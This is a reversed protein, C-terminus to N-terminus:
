KKFDFSTIRFETRRNEQEEYDSKEPAYIPSGEGFGFWSLREPNVGKDALYKVAAMARRESLLKNYGESGNTDTHSGLQITIQPNALLMGLLKDLELAADARIFYKDYDYYINKLVIPKTVFIPEIEIDINRELDVHLTDGRGVQDGIGMTSITVDSTLYGPANAVIKYRKNRELPFTYRANETTNRKDLEVLSSGDESYEFLVATAFPVPQKTAKDKVTGQVAVTIHPEAYVIFAGRYIDDRGKGGPRNSSFYLASDGRMWFSAYDDYSSNIPAGVNTTNQYVGDVLESVYLDQGGFGVHGESSFYLKSADESLFPSIENFPTNVYEGANEPTTWGNGTRHAVWVDNGGKGGDRDSIFAITMGDGSISPHMDKTPVTKTKGKSNIVVKQTGNVGEVKVPKGWVKRAYDYRSEYVSCERGKTKGEQCITFYMTLGDGTVSSSGDNMITNIPTGMNYIDAGFTSDDEMVVMYIDSFNEEGSSPDRKTKKAEPIPRHSSFLLFKDEQRQDLIVPFGDHSPSNISLNEVRFSPKKGSESEAFDCGKIENEARLYYEDDTNTHKRQFTMFSEKAKQYNNLRKYVLGLELYATDNREPDTEIAKKYWRQAERYDQIINSIVAMRYISHYHNPDAAMIQQYLDSAQIYDHSAFAADAKKILKDLKPVPSQAYVSLSFMAAFIFVTLFRKLLGTMMNTYVQQM